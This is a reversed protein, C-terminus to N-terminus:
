SVFVSANKMVSHVSEHELELGSETLWEDKTADDGANQRNELYQTDRNVGNGVLPRDVVYQTDVVIGWDQFVTNKSLMPHQRIQLTGYPTIYTMLSMGYSDSKPTMQVEGHIRGVKNIVTILRNGALLLKENSGDEFVDELHAEWADVDVSDAFDKVNTTVLTLFGKTTREPQEGSTDEVGTGFIYAMEREMGHIELSERQLELLHAGTRLRMARATGTINLATRFIQTYNAVVSPDFSIASPVPAGEKHHSGVIQLVDDDNMAAASSGKGRAVTIETTLSPDSTVWFVELTRCNIVAHGKKFINALNNKIEITTDGSTQSGNVLARMTPLGKEFIKFEPDDTNEVKLKSMLATLPMQSNPYLLLIRERYNKPREDSSFSGSGRLGLVIGAQNTLVVFGAQHLLRIAYLGLLALAASIYTPFIPMREFVKM